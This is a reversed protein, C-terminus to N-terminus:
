PAPAPYAEGTAQPKVGYITGQYCSYRVNVVRSEGEEETPEFEYFESYEGSGGSEWVLDTSVTTGEDPTASPFFVVDWTIKYYPYPTGEYPPIAYSAPNIAAKWRYRAFKITATEYGCGGSVGTFNTYANLSWSGTSEQTGGTAACGDGELPNPDEWTFNDILYAVGETRSDEETFAGSNTTGIFTTFPPTNIETLIGRRLSTQYKFDVEKSAFGGDAFNDITYTYYTAGESAAAFIQTKHNWYEIEVSPPQCEHMLCCGCFGLRENWDNLTEIM